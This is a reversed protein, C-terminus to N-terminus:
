GKIINLELKQIEFFYIFKQTVNTFLALHRIHKLQSFILAQKLLSVIEPIFVFYKSLNPFSLTKKLIFDYIIDNSSLFYEELSIYFIVGQRITSFLWVDNM